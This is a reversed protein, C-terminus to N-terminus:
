VHADLGAAAGGPREVVAAVQPTAALVHHELRRPRVHADRPAAATQLPQDIAQAASRAGVKAGGDMRGDALDELAHHEAVVLADVLTRDVGEPAAAQQM